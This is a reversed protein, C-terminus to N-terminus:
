FLSGIFAAISKEKTPAQVGKDSKNSLQDKVAPAPKKKLLQIDTYVLEAIRVKQLTMSFRIVEDQNNREITLDTIAMNAHTRYPVSVSILQKGYYIAEIFDIFQERYTKSTTANNGFFSSAQKGDAIAKDIQKIKDQADNVLANVRSIQTQTRSPLYQTVNGVQASVTKQLETFTSPNVIIDSVEGTISISIPENVIHDNAFSGDELPYIPAKAKYKTSDAVTAYTTFGGIGVRQKSKGALSEAYGAIFEQIM